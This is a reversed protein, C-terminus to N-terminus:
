VLTLKLEYKKLKTETIAIIDPLKQLQLIYHTLKDINKQFSRTNFHMLLFDNYNNSAHNNISAIDHYNCDLFLLENFGENELKTIDYDNEFEIGYDVAGKASIVHNNTHKASIVHDNAGKASIM